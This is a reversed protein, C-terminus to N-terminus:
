TLNKLDPASRKAKLKVEPVDNTTESPYIPTLKIMKKGDVEYPEGAEFSEPYIWTNKVSDYKPEFEILAGQVEQDNIMVRYSSLVTTDLNITYQGRPVKEFTRETITPIDPDNTYPMPDSRAYGSEGFLDRNIKFEGYDRLEKKENDDQDACVKFRGVLILVDKDNTAKGKTSTSAGEQWVDYSVEQKFTIGREAIGEGGKEDYDDYPKYSTDYQPGSMTIVEGQILELSAFYSKVADREASTFDRDKKWIGSDPDYKYLNPFEFERSRTDDITGDEKTITVTLVGMSRDTTTNGDTDTTTKPKLSIGEVLKFDEAGIVNGFNDKFTFKKNTVLERQATLSYDLDVLYGYPITDYPLHFDVTDNALKFNMKAYFNAQDTHRELYFLDLSVVKGSQIGYEPHQNAIDDLDIEGDLPVHAGGLDIYLHGNVFVYVDDDGAFYFYQHGGKQYVFKSSSKLSYLFNHSQGKSDALKPDASGYRMPLETADDVVFFEGGNVRVDGAAPNVTTSSLENRITKDTKNYILPLAPSPVKPLNDKAAAFEYYINGSSDEVQHFIINEYDDYKANLSPHYQWFHSTVFYAYDMCTRVDTWGLDPDGDFKAKSEDYDGLPYIVAGGNPNTGLYASSLTSRDPQLQIRWVGYRQGYQSMADSFQGDPLEAGNEAKITITLKGDSGTTVVDGGTVLRESNGTTTVYINTAGAVQQGGIGVTYKSDASLAFTKSVSVKYFFIIADKKLIYLPTTTSLADDYVEAYVNSYTYFLGNSLTYRITENNKNELRFSHTQGIPLSPLSAEDPMWMTSVSVNKNPDEDLVVENAGIYKRMSLYHNPNTNFIARSHGWHLRRQVAQAIREVTEKKYVPLGNAGLTDEVLGKGRGLGYYDQYLELDADAGDTAAWEFLLNDKPFDLVEIPFLVEDAYGSDGAAKVSSYYPIMTAAMVVALSAFITRKIFKRIKM